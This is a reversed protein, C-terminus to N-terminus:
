FHYTLYASTGTVTYFMDPRLNTPPDSPLVADRALKDGYRMDISFDLHSFIDRWQAGAGLYWGYSPAGTYYRAAGLFATAALHQGWRHRYDLARLALLLDGNLRDLEV